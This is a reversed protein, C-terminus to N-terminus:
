YLRIPPGRKRRLIEWLSAQEDLCGVHPAQRPCEGADPKRLTIRLAAEQATAHSPSSESPPPPGRARQVNASKSQCLTTLM